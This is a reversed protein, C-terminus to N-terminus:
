EPRTIAWFVVGADLEGGTILIDFLGRLFFPDEMFQAFHSSAKLQPIARIFFKCIKKKSLKNRAM